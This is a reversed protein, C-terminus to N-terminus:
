YGNLRNVIKRGYLLDPSITEVPNTLKIPSQHRGPHSLHGM